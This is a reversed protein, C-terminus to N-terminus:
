MEFLMGRAFRLALVLIASAAIWSGLIRTGIRQWDRTLLSACVAVFGLALCAGLWTGTLALTADAMAIVQPPSDLGLAAGAIVALAVGLLSPLVFALAVLLGSVATVGLLVDTAPTQGVALAIASLGAALALAFAVLAVIRSGGDPRGVLLGLALLALLHAPVMLPDVFGGAFAAVSM